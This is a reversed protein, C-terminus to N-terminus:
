HRTEDFRLYEPPEEAIEGEGGERSFYPSPPRKSENPVSSSSRRGTVWVRAGTVPARGAVHEM